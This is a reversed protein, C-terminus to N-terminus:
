LPRLGTEAAPLPERGRDLRTVIWEGNRREIEIVVSAWMAGAPNEGHRFRTGEWAAPPSGLSRLYSEAMEIVEHPGLHDCPM